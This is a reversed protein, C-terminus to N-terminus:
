RPMRRNHGDGWERDTAIGCEASRPGTKRVELRLLSHAEFWSVTQRRSRNIVHSTKAFVFVQPFRARQRPAAGNSETTRRSGNM